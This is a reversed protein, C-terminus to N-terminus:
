GHRVAQRKGRREPKTVTVVLGNSIVLTAGVSQLHLRGSGIRPITNARGDALIDARAKDIIDSGIVREIWRLLAHDSVLSNPRKASM